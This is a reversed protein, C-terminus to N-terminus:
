GGAIDGLSARPGDVGGLPAILEAFEFLLRGTFAELGAVALLDFWPKREKVGGFEFLEWFLFAVAFEAAGAAFLDFWPKM